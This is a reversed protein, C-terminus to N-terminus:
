GGSSEPLLWYLCRVSFRSFSPLFHGHIKGEFYRKEYKYTEKVHQLIECSVFQKVEGRFFPTNCVKILRLFGDDDAPNSGKFM